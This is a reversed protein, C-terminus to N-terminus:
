PEIPVFSGIMKGIPSNPAGEPDFGGVELLLSGGGHRLVYFCLLYSDKMARVFYASVNEPGLRRTGYDGEGLDNQLLLGRLLTEASMDRHEAVNVYVNGGSPDAYFYTDGDSQERLTFLAPDYCMSYMGERTRRVLPGGELFVAGADTFGCSALLLCLAGWAAAFRRQKKRKPTDM